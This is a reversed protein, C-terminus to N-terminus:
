VKTENMKAHSPMKRNEHLYVGQEVQHQTMGLRDVRQLNQWYNNLKNGDVHILLPKKRDKKIFKNAVLQHVYFGQRVGDELKLNLQIFGQKMLSGKLLKENGSMKEISKLRGYDSFYYNCKKTATKAKVKVWRENWYSKIKNVSM